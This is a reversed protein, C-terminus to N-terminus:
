TQSRQSSKVTIVWHYKIQFETEYSKLNSLIKEYAGLTNLSIPNSIHIKKTLCYNTERNIAWSYLVWYKWSLSKDRYVKYIKILKPIIPHQNHAMHLTHLSFYACCAGTYYHNRFKNYYVTTLVPFNTLEAMHWFATLKRNSCLVETQSIKKYIINQSIQDKTTPRDSDM